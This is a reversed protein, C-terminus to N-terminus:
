TGFTVRTSGKIQQRCMPCKKLAPACQACCVLHGCPLFVIAVTKECCIKCTHAERMSENEKKMEDNSLQRSKSKANKSNTVCGEDELRFIEELILSGTLNKWGGVQPIINEIAEKITKPLYGFELVSQAADTLLPNKEYTSEPYEYLDSQKIARHPPCDQEIDNVQLRNSYENGTDAEERRAAEQVQAIFEASTNNVVFPCSPRWRAHEVWPDDEPDWNRLGVGCQFCRVSDEVKISFFGAEALKKAQVNIPWSAFTQIRAQLDRYEFHKAPLRRKLQGAYSQRIINGTM